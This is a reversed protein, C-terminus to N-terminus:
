HPPSSQKLRRTIDEPIETEPYRKRFADLLQEAERMKGADLLDIISQLEAPIAADAEDLTLAKKPAAQKRMLAPESEAKEEVAMPTSPAMLADESLVRGPAVREAAPYPADRMEQSLSTEKELNPMLQTLLLATILSAAIGGLWQPTHSRKPKIAKKAASRIADDLATPPQVKDASHYLDSLGRDDSM